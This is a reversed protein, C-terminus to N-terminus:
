SGLVKSRLGSGGSCCGTMIIHATAGFEPTKREQWYLPYAPTAASNKLKPVKPTYGFIKEKDPISLMQMRAWPMPDVGTYTTDHTSSEGANRCSDNRPKTPLHNRALPM